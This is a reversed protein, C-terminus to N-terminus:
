NDFLIFNKVNVTENNNNVLQVFSLASVTKTQGSVIENLV